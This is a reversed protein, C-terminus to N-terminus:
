KGCVKEVLEGLNKMNVVDQMTFRIQFEQELTVILLMHTLSDWTPVNMSCSEDNLDSVPVKMVRSVILLVRDRDSPTM